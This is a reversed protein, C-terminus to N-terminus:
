FMFYLRSGVCSVLAVVPMMIFLHTAERRRGQEAEEGEAKEGGRGLEAQCWAQKADKRQNWDMGGVREWYLGPHAANGGLFDSRAAAAAVAAM